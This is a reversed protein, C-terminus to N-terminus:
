SIIKLTALFYVWVTHLSRWKSSFIIMVSMRSAHHWWLEWFQKVDHKQALSSLSTFTTQLSTFLTRFFLNTHVIKSFQANCFVIFVLLMKEFQTWSRLQLNAFYPLSFISVGFNSDYLFNAECSCQKEILLSFYRTFFIIFM